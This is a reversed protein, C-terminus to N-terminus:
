AECHPPPGARTLRWRRWRRSIIWFAFFMVLVLQSYFLILRIPGERWYYRVWAHWITFTSVGMSAPSFADDGSYPRIDTVKWHVQASVMVEETGKGVYREHVERVLPIEGDLVEYQIEWSTRGRGEVSREAHVLVYNMDPRLWLSYEFPRVPDEMETLDIRVLDGSSAKEHSIRRVRVYPRELVEALPPWGPIPLCYPIFAIYAGGRLTNRRLEHDRFLWCSLVRKTNEDREVTWGLKRDWLSISTFCLGDECTFDRRIRAEVAWYRLLCHRQSDVAAQPGSLVIRKYSYSAEMYIRAYFDRVKKQVPIYTRLFDERSIDSESFASCPYVLLYLVPLARWFSVQKSSLM